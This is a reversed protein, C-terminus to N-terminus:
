EGSVRQVTPRSLSSKTEEASAEKEDEKKDGGIEVQKSLYYDAEDFPRSGNLAKSLSDTKEQLPKM